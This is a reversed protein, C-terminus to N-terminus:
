GVAHLGAGNATPPAVGQDDGTAPEKAAIAPSRNPPFAILDRGLGTIMCQEASCFGLFLDAGHLPMGLM